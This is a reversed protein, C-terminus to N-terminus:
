LKINDLEKQLEDGKEVSKPPELEIVEDVKKNSEVIKKEEETDMKKKIEAIEKKVAILHKTIAENQQKLKKHNDILSHFIKGIELDMGSLKKSFAPYDIIEIEGGLVVKQSFVAPGKVDLGIASLKSIPKKFTVEEFFQCKNEFGLPVTFKKM